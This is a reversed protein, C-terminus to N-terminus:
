NMRSTLGPMARLEWPSIDQETPMLSASLTQESLAMIALEQGAISNLLPPNEFLREPELSISVRKVIHRHFRRKYVARVGDPDFTEIIAM